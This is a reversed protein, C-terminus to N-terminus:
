IGLRSLAGAIASAWDDYALQRFIVISDYWPSDRRVLQWRWDPVWPLLLVTCPKGMAGALHAIATDSTIVADLNAIVAATDAFDKMLPGADFLGDAREEERLDIQLSIWHMHPARELLPNLLHPPISRHFDNGFEPRGRWCLGIKRGQPLAERLRLATGLPARLYSTGDLAFHPAVTQWLDMVPLAIDHGAILAPITDDDAFSFTVGDIQELLPILPAKTAWHVARAVKVIDPVFRAMMINDGFGQEHVICVSKGALEALHRQPLRWRQVAPRGRYLFFGEQFRGHLMHVHAANVNSEPDGATLFDELADAWRHFQTLIVGRNVRIMLQLADDGLAFAGTYDWLAQKIQKTNYYCMGRNAMAQFKAPGPMNIVRTFGDIAPQWRGARMAEYADQFIRRYQRGQRTDAIRIPLQITRTPM